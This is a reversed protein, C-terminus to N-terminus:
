KEYEQRIIKYCRSLAYQHKEMNSDDDIWDYIESEHSEVKIKKGKYDSSIVYYGYSIMEIFFVVRRYTGKKM